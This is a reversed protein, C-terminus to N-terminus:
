QPLVPTSRYRLSLWCPFNGRAFFIRRSSRCPSSGSIKWGRTRRQAVSSGRESTHTSKYRPLQVAQSYWSITDLVLVIQFRMVANLVFIFVCVISIQVRKVTVVCFLIWINPSQGKGVAVFSGPSFFNSFPKEMNMSNYAINMSNYAINM